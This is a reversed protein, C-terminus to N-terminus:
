PGRTPNEPITDDTETALRAKFDPVLFIILCNPNIAKITLPQGNTQPNQSHKHPALKAKTPGSCVNDRNM